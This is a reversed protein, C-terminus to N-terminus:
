EDEEEMCFNMDFDTDIWTESLIREDRDIIDAISKRNHIILEVPLDFRSATEEFTIHYNGELTNRAGTDVIWKAIDEYFWYDGFVADIAKRVHAKFHDLLMNDDSPTKFGNKEYFTRIQSYYPLINGYSYYNYDPERSFENRYRELGSVVQKFDEDDFIYKIIAKVIKREIKM